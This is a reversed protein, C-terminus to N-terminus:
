SATGNKELIFSTIFPTIKIENCIRLGAGQFTENWTSRSLFHFAGINYAIFNATDRLHETIIIKGSQRVTRNLEKFFNTRETDNRIEHASFIVFVNDATNEQVPLSSTSSQMTGGYPPYANRARKISIETHKQPDYFDFVKIESGPYKSHLLASTEDFGANINLIKGETNINLDDLWDFTYLNSLDYVYFSVILSILVPVIVLLSVISMYFAYQGNSYISLSLISLVLVVPLLYFHWNFRIINTVGQFPKRIRGM